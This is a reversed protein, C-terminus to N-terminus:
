HIQRTYSAICAVLDKPNIPKTLHDSYGVALCKKRVEDMAHATLAIIPKDYGNERLKQTASYGDMIPMQVDMLVLDHDNTLAKKYGELGNDASEMKAGAKNLFRCILLQNDPSDDVVLVRIGKLPMSGEIFASSSFDKKKEAAADILFPRKEPHDAFTFLFTSGHNLATSKVKVEGGLARALKRSLALGLGTGGFRRTISTDGQVFMEFLEMEQEKRIGLGTDSVEFAIISHGASSKIQGSRITVSGYQTFKIANSVLNVLVQHVRVPDSIMEQPTDEGAIFELKLNKQKAKVKFLSVVDRAIQKPNTTLYELRLHGAEVKSLDLIDNIIFSLQQGNKILVDVYNSRECHSLNPDRLLDAFGIMASLPTRIEHSMTALFNSKLQNAKEAEEKALRYETIAVNKETVDSFVGFLGIIKGDPTKNPQCSFDIYLNKIQGNEKQVTIPFDKGSYPKGLFYVEDLSKKIEPTLLEPLIDFVSKGLLEDETISILDAYYPNALKFIHNPGELVCVAFPAEMFFNHSYVFGERLFSDKLDNSM